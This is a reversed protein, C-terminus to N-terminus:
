SRQPPYLLQCTPTFMLAVNTAINWIVQPVVLKHQALIGKKPHFFLCQGCYSVKCQVCSKTANAPPKEECIDCPVINENTASKSYKAVINALSFNRPLKALGGDDLVAIYRCEPCQVVRGTHDGDLARDQTSCGVGGGEKVNSQVISALCDRCYLHMCPLAVPDTFLELCIPCSLEPDLASAMQFLILVLKEHDHHYHHAIQAGKYIKNFGLM